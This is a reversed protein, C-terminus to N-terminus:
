LATAITDMGDFSETRPPAPRGFYYGQVFDFGLERCVEAEERTEIGEALTATSFDKAMEILTRVMRHQHVPAKDIDRILGIDFKLYNPPAKVLELLRSRGAGFDDYALEINLDRLKASFELMQMPDHIAAEHVELVINVTPYSLRLRRLSPIVDIDLSENPHTNIFVTHTGQLLRADEVARERCVISLDVARNLLEATEFMRGPNELGTVSSRALAEYGFISSGDIKLLPQYHPHVARTKILEDFQSFVWESEFSDLSQATKKLGPDFRQPIRAIPQYEVRFEVDAIEIHDGDDVRLTRTLRQRNVYTGNTSGLDRIFLHGGVVLIEAHRGSVKPSPVSLPLGDRRGITVSEGEIPIRMVPQGPELRGSLFWGTAARNSITDTTSAATAVHLM